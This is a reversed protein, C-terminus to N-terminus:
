RKSRIEELLVNTRQQEKLLLYVGRAIAMLAFTRSQTMHWKNDALLQKGMLSEAFRVKADTPGMNPHAETRAQKAAEETGQYFRERAQVAKQLYGSASSLLSRLKQDINLMSVQVEVISWV